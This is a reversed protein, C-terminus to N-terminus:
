ARLPDHATDVHERLDTGAAQSSCSGELCQVLVTCICPCAIPYRGCSREALQVSSVVHLRANKM